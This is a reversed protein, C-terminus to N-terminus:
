RARPLANTTRRAPSAHVRPPGDEVTRAARPAHMARAVDMARLWKRCVACAIGGARSLAILNTANAGACAPCVFSVTVPIRTASTQM